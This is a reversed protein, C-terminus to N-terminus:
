RDIALLERYNDEEYNANEIMLTRMRKKLIPHRKIANEIEIKNKVKFAAILRFNTFNKKHCKIREAM